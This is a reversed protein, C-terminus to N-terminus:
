AVAGISKVARCAAEFLHPDRDALRRLANLVELLEREVPTLQLSSLSGAGDSLLKEERTRQRILAAALNAFHFFGDMDLATFRDAGKKNVASLTGIAENDVILPAVLVNRYEVGTREDMSRDLPRDAIVDRNDLAVGHRSGAVAFSLGVLGEEGDGAAARFTLSEKADDLLALGVGGAKVVEMACHLLTKVLPDREIPCTGLSLYAILDKM